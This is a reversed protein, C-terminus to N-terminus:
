ITDIETQMQQRIHWHKDFVEVWRVIYKYQHLYGVQLSNKENIQVHLHLIMYVVM